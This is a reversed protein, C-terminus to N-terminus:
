AGTCLSQFSSSSCFFFPFVYHFSDWHQDEGHAPDDQHKEKYGIGGLPVVEVADLVLGHAVTLVTRGAPRGLLLDSSCVVMHRKRRFLPAQFGSLAFLRGCVSLRQGLPDDQAGLSQSSGDCQHIRIVHM